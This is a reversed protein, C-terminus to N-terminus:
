DIETKELRKTAIIPTCPNRRSEPDSSTNGPSLQNISNTHPSNGSFPTQTNEHLLIKQPEATRPKNWWM